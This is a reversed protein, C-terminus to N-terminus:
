PHGGKVTDKQESNGYKLLIPGLMQIGMPMLAPAGALKCEEQFITRQALSCRTGGWEEPWEPALWGKEYLIKQWAMAADFDSFISTMRLGACKTNAASKRELVTQSRRSVRYRGPQANFECSHEWHNKLPIIPIPIPISKLKTVALCILRYYNVRVITTIPPGCTSVQSPGYSYIGTENFSTM